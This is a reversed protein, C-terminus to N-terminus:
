HQEVDHPKKLRWEVHIPRGEYDRAAGKWPFRSEIIGKEELARLARWHVGKGQQAKARTVEMTQFEATMARLARGVSPVLVVPDGYEVGHREVRQREREVRALERAQARAEIRANRAAELAERRKKERESAALSSKEVRRADDTDAWAKLRDDTIVQLGGGILFNALRSYPVGITAARAKLDSVVAYDISLMLPTKMTLVYCTGCSVSDSLPGVGQGVGFM